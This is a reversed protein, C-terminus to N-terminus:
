FCEKNIGTFSKNVIYNEKGWGMVTLEEKGELLYQKSERVEEWLSHHSKMRATSFLSINLRSGFQGQRKRCKGIDKIERFWIVRGIM